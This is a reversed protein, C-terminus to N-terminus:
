FIKFIHFNFKIDVINKHYLLVLSTFYFFQGRFFLVCQGLLLKDKIFEKEIIKIHIM